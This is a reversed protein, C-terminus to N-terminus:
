FDVRYNLVPLLGNMYFSEITGKDAAYYTGWVNLRNTVNQLNLSIRWSWKPNNQQYSIGVDVRFYDPHRLTYAEEYNYVASGKVNSAQLDIPIYRYGGRWITRINAGLINQDNSGLTWEKGAMVSAMYNSNFRTNRVEFGPNQYKSEFLAGTIMYYYGQSLRKDLTVEVGYNEGTGENVLDRNTTGSSFNLASFTGTSDDAAVPVDYISQYYLETKLSTSSNMVCQYSLIYHAAKTMELDRNPQIMVGNEEVEALYISIPEIRSHIGFGGSVSHSETINYTMGARPEIAYDGNLNFYTFHMGVNFEFRESYRHQWLGYSRFATSQGDDDVVVEMTGTSFNMDRSLLSYNPLEYTVGARIVNRADFKHNVYSNIRFTNYVNQDELIVTRNADFDLTDEVVAYSNKAYVGTTKLYTNSGLPIFHSLGVINLGHNESQAFRDSRFEWLSTDTESAYGASSKAWLGWLSFRGANRSPVNIKYSLDQFVPIIDGGAVDIGVASLMELTSYRYNVLYSANSNSSFPGEASLQLGLVGVQASYERKSTNGNRLRLDFVGSLANGYEAPFAGTMFDSNDLVMTSLASVGGGSSGEGDSFHNPNPIEVGEMRWLMGRPSNGRIVLENGEDDSTAVGAFSQVTRAPDNIGAAVRQTSEITLQKSSVSTMENLPRSTNTEAVVTIEDMTNVAEKMSINLIVERGSTVNIAQLNVPEFGFVNFHVNVRGVPVALVTFNGDADAIVSENFSGSEVTVEVFPVSM